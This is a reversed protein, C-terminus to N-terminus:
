PFSFTPTMPAFSVGPHISSSTSSRILDMSAYNEVLWASFEGKHRGALAEFGLLMRGDKNSGDTDAKSEAVITLLRDAPRGPDLGQRAM